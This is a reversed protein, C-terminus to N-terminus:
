QIKLVKLADFDIVAGGVRARFYLKLWGKSTINDRILSIGLRDVIQYGDSFSGYVVAKGASAQTKPMDEMFTVGSGLIQPVAGEFLLRPNILFDGEDEATRLKCIDIFIRRAMAWRARPIYGEKLYAQLDLLDEATINAGATEITCLKGREYTDADAWADYALFGKPKDIGNGTVFATNSVRGFKDGVKRAIWQEINSTADEIFKLSLKPYAYMEHTPIEVESIQPTDTEARTSLENVWGAGLDGDDLPIKVGERITNMTSAIGRVPSTEFMRTVIKSTLEVPCLYGGDPDSGVYMAKVHARAQDEPIHPLFNKMLELMTAEKHEQSQPIQAQTKVANLFLQKLEPDGVIEKKGDIREPMRSLALELEKRAKSESELKESIEQIKILNKEMDSAIKEHKAKDDASLSEFKDSAEKQLVELNKKFAEQYKSLNEELRKIEEPM